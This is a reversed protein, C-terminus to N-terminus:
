KGAETRNARSQVDKLMERNQSHLRVNATIAMSILAFLALMILLVSMLAFGNPRTKM